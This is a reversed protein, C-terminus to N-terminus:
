YFSHNKYLRTRLAGKQFVDIMEAWDSPSNSGSLAEGGGSLVSGIFYATVDQPTLANKDVQTMQGIKEELTMRSLLDEARKEPPQSPDLTLDSAPQATPGSPATAVPATTPTAGLTAAPGVTPAQCASLASTLLILFTVRVEKGRCLSPNINYPSVLRTNQGRENTKLFVMAQKFEGAKLDTYYTYDATMKAEGAGAQMTRAQTPLSKPQVISVCRITQDRRLGSLAGYIGITRKDARM